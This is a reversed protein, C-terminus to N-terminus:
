KVNQCIFKCIKESAHGEEFSGIKEIFSNIKELYSEENFNSLVSCLEDMNQTVPFPLEGLDFYLERENELYEKLDPVYLICSKKAIAMDFMCSSFDTILIDTAAILEQMDSYKSMSIANQPIVEDFINPHLRAGIVWTNGLVEKLRNFNIDLFDSIKNTRFTPAYLILKCDDPINFYEYVKKKTNNTNNFLIDCRPTGCEMIQGDYWFARKFIDTSFKCGSLLVDIRKSDEKCANIYERSLYKEADKEIKKLRISSHWTQIYIQDIRKKWYYADGTRMNCIVFKATHIERLYDISFYRVIRVKQPIDRPIEVDKDFVWVIDFINPYHNLLYLTIYKPSCSFHKFSDAWFIIKNNSISRHRYFERYFELRVKKVYKLIRM